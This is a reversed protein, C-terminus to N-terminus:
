QKVCCVYPTKFGPVDGINEEGAGCGKSATVPKGGAAYCLDPYLPQTEEAVPTTAQQSSETVDTQEEGEEGIPAEPAGGYKQYAIVIVIIAIIVLLAMRSSSMKKKKAM